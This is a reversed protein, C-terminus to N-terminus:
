KLSNSRKFKEIEKKLMKKLLSPNKRCRLEPKNALLHAQHYSIGRSMCDRECFEHVLVFQQERRSLKEEIWIEKKPIFSYVLDHGGLTFDVYFHDRVLKGNVLWVQLQDIMLVKKKKLKLYHEKLKKIKKVIKKVRRQRKEIRDAIELAVDYNLGKKMLAHEAFLRTIFFKRELRYTEQDIWFENKPIFPFRYHHGFNTFEVDINKRIFSADVLWIIKDNKKCIRELYPKVMSIGYSV